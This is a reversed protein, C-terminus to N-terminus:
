ADKDIVPVVEVVTPSCESSAFAYTFDQHNCAAGWVGEANMCVLAICDPKGGHRLIYERQKSMLEAPSVPSNKQKRHSLWTVVDVFAMGSPEREFYEILKM